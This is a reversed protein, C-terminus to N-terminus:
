LKDVYIKGVLFLFVREIGTDSACKFRISILKM